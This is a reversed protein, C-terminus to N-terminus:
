VPNIWGILSSALRYYKQEELCSMEDKSLIWSVSFDYPKICIGQFTHSLFLNESQLYRKDYVLAFINVMLIFPCTCYWDDM